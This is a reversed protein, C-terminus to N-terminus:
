RIHGELPDVVVEHSLGPGNFKHSWWKSDPDCRFEQSRTHICDVGLFKCNKDLGDFSIKQYKLKYIRKTYDQSTERCYKEAYGWRGAMVEAPDYLKLWCISMFLNKPTVPKGDKELDAILAKVAEPGVGYHARFCRTDTNANGCRSADFGVNDLGQM